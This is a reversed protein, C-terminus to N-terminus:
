DSPHAQAFDACGMIVGTPVARANPRLFQPFAYPFGWLVASIKFVAVATVHRECKSSPRKELM